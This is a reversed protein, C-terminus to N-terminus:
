LKGAKNWIDFDSPTESSSAGASIHISGDAGIRFSSPNIGENRLARIHRAVQAPSAHRYRKTM